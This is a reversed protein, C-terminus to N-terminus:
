RQVAVLEVVNSPTSRVLSEVHRSWAELAALREAAYDFQNYVRAVGSIKGATHNLIRDVVHHAIGIRAMGTAASRRIDHLTFPELDGM